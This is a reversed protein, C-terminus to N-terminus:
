DGISLTHVGEQARHLGLADQAAGTDPPRPPCTGGHLWQSLLARDTLNDLGLPLLATGGWGMTHSTASCSRVGIEQM